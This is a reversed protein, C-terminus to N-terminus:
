NSGLEFKAQAQTAMEINRQSMQQQMEAKTTCKFAEMILFLLERQDYTPQIPVGNQRITDSLKISDDWYDIFNRRKTVATMFIIFQDLETPEPKILNELGTPRLVLSACYAKFDEKLKEKDVDKGANDTLQFNDPLIPDALAQATVSYLADVVYIDQTIDNHKSVEVLKDCVYKRVTEFQVEEPQTLLDWNELRERAQKQLELLQANQEM